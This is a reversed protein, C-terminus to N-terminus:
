RSWSLEATFAYGTSRITVIPIDMNCSESIKRRLRRLMVEMRRIDYTEPDEELRAVIESRQVVAGPKKALCEMLTLESATLKAVHGVPSCLEWTLSNLEWQTSSSLRHLLNKVSIGIEALNVPKVFYGDAGAARGAIRENDKGSATIIIVGKERLEPRRNLWELGSEGPLSLDLLLIDADNKVLWEDAQEISGLGAAAHGTQRLFGVAAERLDTEDEIVLVDISRSM